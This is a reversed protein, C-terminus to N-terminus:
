NRRRSLWYRILYVPVAIGAFLFAVVGWATPHASGHKSAHWFVAMALGAAIAVSVLFAAPSPEGLAATV